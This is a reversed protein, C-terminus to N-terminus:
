RLLAAVADFLTVGALPGFILMVLNFVVINRMVQAQRITLRRTPREPQWPAPPPWDRNDVFM